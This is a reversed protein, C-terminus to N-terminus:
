PEQSRRIKARTEFWWYYSKNIERVKACFEDFLMGTEVQMDNPGVQALDHMLRLTAAQIQAPLDAGPYIVSDCTEEIEGSDKMILLEVEGGTTEDFETVTNLAYSAIMAADDLTLPPPNAALFKKIWFKALYGGTGICRYPDLVPNVVTYHSALLHTTGRLWLGVLLDFDAPESKEPRPFLHEEHFSVLASKVAQKVGEASATTLDLKAIADQCEDIAATAFDLDEAAVAFTTACEGNGYARYFLKSENTKVDTTIKTDACLLLGGDFSFGAAITVRKRRPRKVKPKIFPRPKFHNFVLMNDSSISM